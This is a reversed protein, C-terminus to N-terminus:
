AFLEQVAQGKADKTVYFPRGEIDFGTKPSIGMATMITAHLDEISVPNEIVMLPREDATKGYVFGRKMGGGFMVVSTGGTFHRHLGFHKMESIEDVKERAQDRANSGPQGEILADRSFESAIIVLTRDLLGRAELDLILQTIPPDIEKHMRDMTTHGDAHTDWHLFPVYETTVEVFRAGSEVLRRALLCGRGFRSDGYKQRVDEKELTIDFADREKSSLLRYAKDMSRLMSEQHYDSMLERQPSQDILKRYLKNRNVFRQGTMGQPPRVSKAAEEPYPLNLPGFESGFFGATTFAKLEESEGVGELRQGINIFAPMVPNRPGIVRAMWAGLHPAAVTQPPVYGTHWHYQHRSHLISGLDPQVASRILTGRDMVSAIGELGECIELGDVATPIAPFTSLMDAVKLGKKFPLYRKPDFTDPAAMGGGMWLLICSDATAQHQKVPEAENATLLRPTGSMLAAAGAASLHKLFDRRVIQEPATPDIEFTM